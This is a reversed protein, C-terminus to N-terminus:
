STRRVPGSSALPYLAALQIAPRMTGARTQQQKKPLPTSFWRAAGGPLRRAFRQTDHILM